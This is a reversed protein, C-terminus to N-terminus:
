YCTGCPFTLAVLYSLWRETCAAGFIFGIDVFESSENIAAALLTPVSFSIKFVAKFSALAAMSRANSAILHAYGFCYAVVDILFNFQVRETVGASCQCVDGGIQYV